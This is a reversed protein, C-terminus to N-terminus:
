WGKYDKENENGFQALKYLWWAMLGMGVIFLIWDFAYGIPVLLNEFTWTSLYGIGFIIDTILGM